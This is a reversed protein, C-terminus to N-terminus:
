GALLVEEERLERDSSIVIKDGHSLGSIVEVFGGDERRTEIVASRFAM